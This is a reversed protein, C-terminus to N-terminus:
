SDDQGLQMICAGLDLGLADCMLVLSQLTPGRKGQGDEILRIAERSLGTLEALRYQSIGQQTRIEVLMEVFAAVVEQADSADVM